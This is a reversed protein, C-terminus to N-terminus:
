SVLVIDNPTKKPTKVPIKTTLKSSIERRTRTNRQQNHSSSSSNSKRNPQGVFHTYAKNGVSGNDSIRVIEFKRCAALLIQVPASDSNLSQQIFNHLIFVVVVRRWLM